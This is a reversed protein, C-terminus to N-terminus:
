AIQKLLDVYKSYDIEGKLGGHSYDTVKKEFFNDHKEASLLWDMWKLPNPPVESISIYEMQFLRTKGLYEIYGCLDEKTLDEEEGNEYLLEILKLEAEVFLKVLSETFRQLEILEAFSLDEKKIVDIVKINNSVHETEDVLSWQNVDNYGMLLGSRKFNLLITFAAFLGIGEGLAIRTLHKAYGLPTDLPEGEKEGIIDIKEMMESYDKFRSWDTDSFGIAEPLLAYGRQHVVERQAQTIFLCKIENNKTYPLLELYGNAVNRDLETFLPLLLDLTEKNQKHPTNATKLGGKMNYQQLDSQVDVQHVDWFMDVSHKKAAEMAFSYRFPRYSESEKFVSM